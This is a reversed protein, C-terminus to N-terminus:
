PQAEFHSWTFSGVRKIYWFGDPQRPPLMATNAWMNTFNQGNVTLLDLNNSNIFGLSSIRWCFTGIGDGVFPATITVAPSCVGGTPTGSTPSPTWTPGVLTPTRTPTLATVCTSPYGCTPTPTRTATPGGITPTRTRTATPGGLTATRTFTATPWAPTLTNTPTSTPGGGVCNSSGDFPGDIEFHGGGNALFGDFTITYLGNLPPISSSMVFINAYSTGNIELKNMQWSNIHDCLTTTQWCATGKFNIIVPVSLATAPSCVTQASATSAMGIAATLVIVLIAIVSLFRIKKM